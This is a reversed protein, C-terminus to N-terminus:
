DMNNETEIASDGLVREKQFQTKQSMTADYRESLITRKHNETLTKKESDKM